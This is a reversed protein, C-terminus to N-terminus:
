FETGRSLILVGLDTGRSLDQVTGLLPIVMMMLGTKCRGENDEDPM